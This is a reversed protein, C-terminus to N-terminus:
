SKTKLWDILATADKVTVIIKSAKSVSCNMFEAVADRLRSYGAKSALFAAYSHQKATGITACYSEDIM